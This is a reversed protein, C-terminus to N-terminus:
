IARELKTSRSSFYFGGLGNEQGRPSRNSFIRYELNSGIKSTTLCTIDWGLSISLASEHINMFTWSYWQFHSELLFFHSPKKFSKGFKASVYLFYIFLILSLASTSYLLVEGQPCGVVTFVGDSHVSKERGTQNKRATWKTLKLVTSVESYHVSKPRGEPTWMVSTRNYRIWCAAKEGFKWASEHVNEHPHPCFTAHMHFHIFGFSNFYKSWQGVLNSSM